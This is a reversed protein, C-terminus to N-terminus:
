ANMRELIENEKPIGRVRLGHEEIETEKECVDAVEVDFVDDARKSSLSVALWELFM